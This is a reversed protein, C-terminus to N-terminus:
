GNMAAKRLKALWVPIAELPEEKAEYELTLYGTYGATKCIAVIRDLDVPENKGDVKIEVKVQCTVAYPACAELQAYANGTRFNGTDLNVGFWDSKIANVIALMGEATAVIGGHNELALVVGRKEAHPLCSDISEVAWTRAEEDTAGKPTNGAFIRIAPSGLDASTDIWRKMMAIQADRKDGPPLTFTNGIPTGTIDLGLKLALRKLGRVYEPTVPQKFFYQTLETGDVDWEHCKRIFDELTMTPNKLTLYKRLSYAALSIPYPRAAASAGPLLLGAAAAAGSGLFTRRDVNM